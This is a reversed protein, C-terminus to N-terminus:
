SKTKSSFIQVYGSQICLDYSIAANCCGVLMEEERETGVPGGCPRQTASRVVVEM